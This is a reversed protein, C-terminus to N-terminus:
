TAAMRMPMLMTTIIRLTMKFGTRPITRAMCCSAPPSKETRMAQEPQIRGSSNRSNVVAKLLAASSSPPVSIKRLSKILLKEWSNLVGMVEMPPKASRSRSSSSIGRSSCRSYRFMMVDSLLRSAASALLTSARERTSACVMRVSVVGKGKASCSRWLVRSTSFFHRGFFSTVM